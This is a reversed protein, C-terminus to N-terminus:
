SAPTMLRGPNSSKLDGLPFTAGSTQTPMKHKAKCVDSALKHIFTFSCLPRELHDMTLVVTYFLQLSNRLLNWVPRLTNYCLKSLCVLMKCSVPDACSSWVARPISPIRSHVGASLIAMSFSRGRAVRCFSAFSSPTFTMIM